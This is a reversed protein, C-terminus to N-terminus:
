CAEKALSEVRVESVNSYTVLPGVDFSALGVLVEPGSLLCTIIDGISGRVMVPRTNKRENVGELNVGICYVFNDL